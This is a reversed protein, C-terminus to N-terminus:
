GANGHAFGSVPTSQKPITWGVGQDTEQAHAVLHTGCEIAASLTRESREHQYLALLSGLCGAAGAIIDLQEDQKIWTPLLEVIREAKALLEADCWLAALHMLTYAIGGWGNFAGIYRLFPKCEESRRLMTTCAENARQTHG